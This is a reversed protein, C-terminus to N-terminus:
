EGPLVTLKTFGRPSYNPDTPQLAICTNTADRALITPIKINPNIPDKAHILRAIEIFVFSVITSLGM